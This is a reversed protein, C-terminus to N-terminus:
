IVVANQLRMVLQLQILKLAHKNPGMYGAGAMMRSFTRCRLPETGNSRM